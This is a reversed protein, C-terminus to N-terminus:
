RARAGPVDACIRFGVRQDRMTSSYVFRAIILSDGTRQEWSASRALTGNPELSSSIWEMVNGNLDDVGFPSREPPHAGSEDAGWLDDAGDFEPSQYTQGLNTDRADIADGTTFVRRDAGRAAREWELDTCLRAGPVRGTKALWSAYARADDASAMGVPLALWNQRGNARAPYEVPEGAAFTRAKTRNEAINELTISWGDKGRKIQARQTWREREERPLSDLYAIYEGNTTEREAIFYAGTEAVHIPATHYLSEWLTMEQSGFLFRGPPVYVFGAPTSGKALLPVEISLDEGPEVFLPYYVTEHEELQITLRYSGPSLEGRHPALGFIQDQGLPWKQGPATEYRAVLVMAGPPKSTVSVRAPAKFLAASEGLQLVLEGFREEQNLARALLAREIIAESWLMRIDERMMFQSRAAALSSTIATLFDNVGKAEKRALKWLNAGEDAQQRDFKAYSAKLAAEIDARKKAAASLRARNIAVVQDAEERERQKGRLVPLAIAAAVLLPVGFFL